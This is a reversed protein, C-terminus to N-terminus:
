EEYRDIQRQAAYLFLVGLLVIFVSHTIVRVMWDPDGIRQSVGDRVLLVFPSSRALTNVFDRVILGYGYPKTILGVVGDLAFTGLCHILVIGFTQAHARASDKTRSSFYVGTSIYFVICSGLLLMTCVLQLGYGSEFLAKGAVIREIRLSGYLGLFFSVTCCLAYKLEAHTKGMIINRSTCASTRLVDWTKRGRERAIAGAPGAPVFFLIGILTFASSIGFIEQRGPPSGALHKMMAGLLIGLFLLTVYVVKPKFFRRANQECTERAYIPNATDAIGHWKRSAISRSRGSSKRVALAPHSEFSGIRHAVHMLLAASIAVASCFFTWEPRAVFWWPGSVGPGSALVKFLAY